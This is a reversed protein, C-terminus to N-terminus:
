PATTSFGGALEFIGGFVGRLAVSREESCWGRRLVGYKEVVIQRWLSNEEQV